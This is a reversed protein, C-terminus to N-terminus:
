KAPATVLATYVNGDHSAFRGTLELGARISASLDVDLRAVFYGAPDLDVITADLFDFRRGVRPYLCKFVSEKASFAITLLINDDCGARRALCRREDRTVISDAATAVVHGRSLAEVDIGCGSAESEYAVIASAIAGSHTISGVVGRPWRPAGDAGVALPEDDFRGSLDTLAKRACYRGALYDLRRKPMVDAVASLSINGLNAFFASLDDADYRISWRRVFAPLDPRDDIRAPAM